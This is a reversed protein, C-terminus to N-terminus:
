SRRGNDWEMALPGCESCVGVGISRDLRVWHCGCACANNDTCGCGICRAIVDRYKPAFSVADLVARPTGLIIFDSPERDITGTQYGERWWMIWIWPVLPKGDKIFVCSDKSLWSMATRYGRYYSLEERRLSDIGIRRPSKSKDFVIIKGQFGVAGMIEHFWIIGNM